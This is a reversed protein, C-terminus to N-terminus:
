GMDDAATLMVIPLSEDGTLLRMQACASYGDLVPMVVDMLVLHPRQAQVADVGAQGNDAEVVQYGQKRLVARLALRTSPDDDVVLIKLDKLSSLPM